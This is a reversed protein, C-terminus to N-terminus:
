FQSASGSFGTIHNMADRTVGIADIIASSGNANGGILLTGPDGAKVTLGGLSGPVGTPNGLTVFSYQSAYYPDITQARAQRGVPAVALALALGALMRTRQIM